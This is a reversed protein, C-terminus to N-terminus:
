QENYFSFADSQSANETRATLIRTGQRSLVQAGLWNLIERNLRDCSAVSISSTFFKTFWWYIKFIAKKLDNLGGSLTAYITLMSAM